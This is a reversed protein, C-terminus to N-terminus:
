FVEWPVIKEDVIYNRYLWFLVPELVMQIATDYQLSFDKDPIRFLQYSFILDFTFTYAKSEILQYSSSIIQLLVESDLQYFLSM